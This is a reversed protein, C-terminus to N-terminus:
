EDESPGYPYDESEVVVQRQEIVDAENALEHSIDNEGEPLPEGETAAEDAELELAQEEADAPPADFRPETM